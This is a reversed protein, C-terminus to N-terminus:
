KEQEGLLSAKWRAELEAVSYGFTKEFSRVVDKDSSLLWAKLKAPGHCRLLCDVVTAAQLSYAKRRQSRFAAGERILKGLPISEKQGLLAAMLEGPPPLLLWRPMLVRHYFIYDGIGEHLFPPIPKYGAFFAKRLDAEGRLPKAALPASDFSGLFLAAHAIEHHVVALSLANLYLVDIRATLRGPGETGDESLITAGFSMGGMSRKLKDGASSRIPHLYVSIRGGPPIDDAASGETPPPVHIMELNRGAEAEIDLSSLIASLAEECSASVFDADEEARSGPRVFFVFRDSAATRWYNLAGATKQDIRAEFFEFMGAGFDLVDLGVKRVLLSRLEDTSRAQYLPALDAHSYRSRLYDFLPPTLKRLYAAGIANRDDSEVLREVLDAVADRGANAPWPLILGLSLTGLLALVGVPRHNM